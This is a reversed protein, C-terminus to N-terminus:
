SPCLSIYMYVYINNEYKCYFSQTQPQRQNLEVQKNNEFWGMEKRTLPETLPDIQALDQDITDEM